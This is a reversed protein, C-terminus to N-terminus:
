PLWFDPDLIQAKREATLISLRVLTDLTSALSASGSSISDKANFSQLALAVTNGDPSNILSARHMALREANTFRRQFADRTWHTDPEIFSEPM